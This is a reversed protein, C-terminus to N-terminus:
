VWLVRLVRQVYKIDVIFRAYHVDGLHGRIPQIRDSKRGVIDGGGRTGLRGGLVHGGDVPHEGWPPAREPLTHGM